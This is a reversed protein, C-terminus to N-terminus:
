CRASIYLESSSLIDDGSSTQIKAFPGRMACNPDAIFKIGSNNRLLSDPVSVVVDSVDLSLPADQSGQKRLVWDCLLWERQQSLSLDGYKPNHVLLGFTMESTDAMVRDGGYSFVVPRLAPYRWAISATAENPIDPLTGGADTCIRCRLSLSEICDMDISIVKTDKGGIYWICDDDIEHWSTGNDESFDWFWAVSDTKDVNGLQAAAEFNYITSGGSLPFHKRTRDNLIQLNWQEGAHLIASLQVSAALVFPSGTRTDTFHCECYAVAGQLHTFNKRVVLANEALYFDKSADTDTIQTDDVFWFVMPALDSADIVNDTDIITWEPVLTLPGDVLAGNGDYAPTHTHDPMWQQTTQRYFQMVSMGGQPVISLATNLPAYQVSVALPQSNNLRKM